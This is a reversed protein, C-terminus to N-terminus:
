WVKKLDITGTGMEVMEVQTGIALADAEDAEHINPFFRVIFHANHHKIVKDIKRSCVKILIHKRHKLKLM